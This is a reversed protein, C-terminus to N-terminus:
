IHFMPPPFHALTCGLQGRQKSAPLTQTKISEYRSARTLPFGGSPWDRLNLVYQTSEGGPETDMTKNEAKSGEMNFNKFSDYWDCTLVKDISQTITHFLDM